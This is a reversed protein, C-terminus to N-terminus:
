DIGSYTPSYNYILNALVEKTHPRNHSKRAESIFFNAVHQTVQIADDSHPIMPLGWEFANKKGNQDTSTTLMKFFSCLETTGQFTEPSIGFKHNQMVLREISLKAILEPPFRQFLTEEISNNKMFQLTSAQDLACFDELINNNQSITMMLLEFGLCIALLPFHEHEDNKKLVQKFIGGIIEFYLGSMNSGGTFLVGNVLNLKKDAASSCGHYDVEDSNMLGNLSFVKGNQDTSTTLMKFFSCLETTAQFTEPSIGFKHNQMVLREISLKAILEPPFRQFLTEEISINKMFQLTSAQDLARFDELINNNQSIIMMLLEFGLCIALLPFHEGKDNKKLVQKFIGGIIEFYLGSMNSGGTFLVGNVLNLKLSFLSMGYALYGLLVKDAASCGHYDVEDSNMLGNLSFVQSLFGLLLLTSIQKFTTHFTSNPRQIPHKPSAAPSCFHSISQLLARIHV